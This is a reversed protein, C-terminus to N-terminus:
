VVSETVFADAVHALCVDVGQRRHALEADPHLFELHEGQIHHGRQLLLNVSEKVPQFVIPRVEPLLVHEAAEVEDGLRAHHEFLALQSGDAVMAGSTVLFLEGQLGGLLSQLHGLFFDFRDRAPAVDAPMLHVFVFAAATRHLAVDFGFEGAGDRRESAHDGRDFAVGFEFEVRIVVEDWDRTHAHPEAPRCPGRINPCNDCMRADAASMASM